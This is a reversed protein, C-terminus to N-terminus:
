CTGSQFPVKAAVLKRLKSKAIQHPCECKHRRHHYCHSVSYIAAVYKRFAALCRECM